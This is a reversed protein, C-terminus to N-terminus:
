KSRDHKEPDIGAASLANLWSGFYRKAASHFLENDCRAAKSELSKGARRRELIEELVKKKLSNAEIIERPDVFGAKSVASYWSGFYRKAAEVLKRTEQSVVAYKLSEGSSHRQKIRELVKKSTWSEYKERLRVEAPDIGAALLAEDWGDFFRRAREYLAVSERKVTAPNVEQGTEQREQIQKVIWEETMPQFAPELESVNKTKMQM